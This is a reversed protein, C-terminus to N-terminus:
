TQNQRFQEPSQKFEKIFARYFSCYSGFNCYIAIEKCSLNSRLLLNMAKDLRQKRRFTSLSQGNKIKFVRSLHERSVRLRNALYSISHRDNFTNGLENEIESIMLNVHSNQPVAKQESLLLDLLELMLAAGEFPSMILTIGAYQKFEMLRPLLLNDTKLEFFYGYIDNIASIWEATTEGLFNIWIFQWPEDADDPYFYRVTPNSDRYIFATGPVADYKQDGVQLIGRGSITVTIQGGVERPTNCTNSIKYGKYKSKMVIMGPFPLDIFDHSKSFNVIWQNIKETEIM